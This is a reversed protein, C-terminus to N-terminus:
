QMCNGHYATINRIGVDGMGQVVTIPASYAAQLVSYASQTQGYGEDQIFAVVELQSLDLLLQFRVDLTSVQFRITDDSGNFFTDRLTTAYYPMDTIAVHEYDWQGKSSSPETFHLKKQALIMHLKIKGTAAHHAIYTQTTHIVSQVWFSDLLPTYGHTVQLDFPSTVLARVNLDAQNLNYLKGTDTRGPQIFAHGDQFGFPISDYHKHYRSSRRTVYYLSQSSLLSNGSPDNYTVYKLLVYNTPTLFLKNTLVTDLNYMHTNYDDYFEEILQTRPSQAYVLQSFALLLILLYHKM